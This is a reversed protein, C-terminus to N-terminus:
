TKEKSFCFTKVGGVEHELKIKLYKKLKGIIKQVCKDQVGTWRSILVWVQKDISLIDTQFVKKDFESVIYNCSYRNLNFFVDYEIDKAQNYESAITIIYHRKYRFVGQWESDEFKGFMSIDKLDRKESSSFYYLFPVVEKCTSIIIIADDEINNQKMVLVVKEWDVNFNTNYMIKLPFIVM